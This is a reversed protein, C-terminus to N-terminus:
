LPNNAVNFNQVPAFTGDGNGLILSVTNSEHNTAVLDAKGDGNVDAAAVALPASGVALVKPAQFTGDANQLLVDVESSGQGHGTALDPRGDGNFDAVAVTSGAVLTANSGSAFNTPGTFTGDGVGKLVSVTGYDNATILDPK